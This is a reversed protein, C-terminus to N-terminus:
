KQMKAWRITPIPAGVFLVISVASFSPKGGIIKIGRETM